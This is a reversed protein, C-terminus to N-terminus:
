YTVGQIFHSFLAHKGYDLSFSSLKNFSEEFLVNTLWFCYQSIFVHNFSFFLKLLKSLVYGVLAYILFFVRSVNESVKTTEWSVSWM